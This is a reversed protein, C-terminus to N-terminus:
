AGTVTQFLNTGLDAESHLSALQDVDGVYVRQRAAYGPLTLHTPGVCAESFQDDM